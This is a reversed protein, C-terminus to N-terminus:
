RESLAECRFWRGGLGTSAHSSRFRIVTGETGLFFTGAEPRIQRSCLSQRWQLPVSLGRIGTGTHSEQSSCLSRASLPVSHGHNPRLWGLAVASALGAQRIGEHRSRSSLPNRASLARSPGRILRLEHSAGGISGRVLHDVAVPREDASGADSPHEAHPSGVACHCGRRRLGGPTVLRPPQPWLWWRRRAAAGITLAPLAVQARQWSGM